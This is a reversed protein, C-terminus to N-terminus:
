FTPPSCDSCSKLQLRLHLERTYDIYHKGYVHGCSRLRYRKGKRPCYVIRQRGSDAAKAEDGLKAPEHASSSPLNAACLAHGRVGDKAVDYALEEVSLGKTGFKEFRELLNQNFDVGCAEFRRHVHVLDPTVQREWLEEVEELTTSSSSSRSSSATSTSTTCTTPSTTTPSLSPSTSTSWRGLFFIMVVIALIVLDYYSGGDLHEREQGEAVQFLCMMTFVYTHKCFWAMNSCVEGMAVHVADFEMPHNYVAMANGSGVLALMTLARLALKASKTNAMPELRKIGSIVQHSHVRHWHDQFEVLGVRENTLTNFVKLYYMLFRMRSQSLLKTNIDAPNLQGAIHRVIVEGSAVAQQVWLVRCSLHRIRGVGTRMWVQRGSSSDMHLTVVLNELQLLFEMVRKLLFTDCLVGSSSYLEAEASSLAICRQTRSSSHVVNGQVCIIGSSVSKRDRKDSAWDSDSFAELMWPHEYQHGLLGSGAPEPTFLLGQHAASALYSVLHRLM